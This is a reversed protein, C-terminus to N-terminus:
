MPFTKTLRVVPFAHSDAIEQLANGPEVSWSSELDGMLLLRMNAPMAQILVNLVNRDAMSIHDLILVDGELWNAAYNQINKAKLGTVETLRRVTEETPAALLIRLGFAQFAYLIGQLTANKRAESGGTLAMVKSAAVQRIAEAQVEDYEIQLKEQIKGVDVSLNPNGTKKRAEQLSKWLRDEAPTQAIQLIKKRLEEKEDYIVIPDIQKNKRHKNKRSQSEEVMREYVKQNMRCDNLARHAGESSIGYYEALDVLRHHPLKSLHRRAMKLTDLYDNDPIEGYFKEADRRIFKMDFGAINHGVLPLGETFNWFKRLVTEFGPADAVMQNTIGNVKTAGAPISRGPNVLSTFEDVVVRNKVKVASIEIVQDWMPSIGTTELDFVVYDSLDDKREKAMGDKRVGDWNQIRIGIRCKERVRSM